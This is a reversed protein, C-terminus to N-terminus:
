SRPAPDEDEQWESDHDVTATNEYGLALRMPGECLYCVGNQRSFLAIIRPNRRSHARNRRSHARNGVRQVKKRRRRPGKRAM